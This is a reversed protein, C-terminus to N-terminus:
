RQISRLYSRIAQADDIKFKFTPMEPHNSSIGRELLTDFKDMEFSRSLNRFPPAGELPSKGFSGTAHCRACYQQALAHGRSSQADAASGAASLGALLVIALFSRIKIYRWMDRETLSVPLSPM